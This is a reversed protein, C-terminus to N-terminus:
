EKDMVTDAALVPAVVTKFPTGRILLRRGPDRGDPRTRVVPLVAQPADRGNGRTGALTGKSFRYRANLRPRLFADEHGTPTM